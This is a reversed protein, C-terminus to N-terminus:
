PAETGRVSAGHKRLGGKQPSSSLMIETISPIHPKNIVGFLGSQTMLPSKKGDYLSAIHTLDGRGRESCCLAEQRDESLRESAWKRANKAAKGARNFSNGRARELKFSGKPMPHRSALIM